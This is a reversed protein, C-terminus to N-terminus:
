QLPAAEGDVKALTEAMQGNGAKRAEEAKNQLDIEVDIGNLVARVRGAPMENLAQVIGTILNLSLTYTKM